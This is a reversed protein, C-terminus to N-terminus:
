QTIRVKASESDEYNKGESDNEDATGDDGNEKRVYVPQTDGKVYDATIHVGTIDSGPVLFMPDLLLQEQKVIIYNIYFM